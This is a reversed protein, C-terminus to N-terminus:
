AGLKTCLGGSKLGWIPPTTCSIQNHNPYQLVTDKKIKTAIQKHKISTELITTEIEYRFTVGKCLGGVEGPADLTHSAMGM